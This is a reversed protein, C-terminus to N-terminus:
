PILESLCVPQGDAVREEITRDRYPWDERIGWGAEDYGKIRGIPRHIAMSIMEDESSGPYDDEECSQYRLCRAAKVIEIPHLEQWRVIDEQTVEGIFTPEPEEDYRYAVSSANREALKLAIRTAEEKNPRWGYDTTAEIAVAVITARNCNYASM